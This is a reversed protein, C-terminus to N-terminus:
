SHLLSCASLLPNRSCHFYEVLNYHCVYVMAWKDLGVSYVASPHVSLYAVSKAYYCHTSTPEEEM